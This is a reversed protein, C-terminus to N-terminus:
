SRHLPHERFFRDFSQLLRLRWSEGGAAEKKNDAVLPKVAGAVPPCGSDPLVAPRPSKGLATRDHHLDTHTTHAPGTSSRRLLVSPVDF